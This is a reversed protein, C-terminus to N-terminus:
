SVNLVSKITKDSVEVIHETVYDSKRGTPKTKFLKVTVDRLDETAHDAIAHDLTLGTISKDFLQGSSWYPM